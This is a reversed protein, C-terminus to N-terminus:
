SKFLVNLDNFDGIIVNRTHLGEVSQGLDHFIEMVEANDIGGQRFRKQSLMYVAEANSVKPMVYGVVEGGPCKALALPSIVNPPLNQPFKRLKELKIRHMMQWLALRNRDWGSEPKHFIKVAKNGWKFVQAEGGTGLIDKPSLRVKKGEVFIDM